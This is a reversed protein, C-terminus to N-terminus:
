MHMTLTVILLYSTEFASGRRKRKIRGGCGRGKGGQQHLKLQGPNTWTEGRIRRAIQIDRPLVTVRCGHIAELVTDEFLGVLYGEAGEQLALIAGSQYRYEGFDLTIERLVRQFSLKSILPGVHKQYYAIELLSKTGPMYHKKRRTSADAPAGHPM